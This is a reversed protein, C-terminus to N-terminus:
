WILSSETITDAERSLVMKTQSILSSSALYFTTWLTGQLTVGVENLIDNDGRVTLESKGTRPITGKTQPVEFRTFGGSSEYSVLLINERDSERSIVSLDNGTGTVLADLQPVGESFALEGNLTFGISVSFPNGANTEGWSELVWDDNGATPVLHDLYPVDLVHLHDVGEGTM